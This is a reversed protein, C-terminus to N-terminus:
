IPQDGQLISIAEEATRVVHVTGRWNQHWIVQCPTLTGQPGKVEMLYNQYNYGVILDPVGKGNEALSTVTAGFDRLANVIENQNRDIKANRM